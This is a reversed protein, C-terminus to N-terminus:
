RGFFGGKTLISFENISMKKTCKNSKEEDKECFVETCSYGWNNDFSSYGLKCTNCGLEDTKKVCVELCKNANKRANEASQNPCSIGECEWEDTLEVRNCIDCGDEAYKRICDAAQIGKQIKSGTSKDCSILASTAFFIGFLFIFGLKKIKISFKM